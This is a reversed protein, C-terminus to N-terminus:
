QREYVQVSNVPQGQANTGTQTLTMTKGDASLVVRTTTTTKGSLSSTVDFSKGDVTKFSNTTKTQSPPTVNEVPVPKGDFRGTRESHTPKGEANVGDFTHKFAGGSAPEIRIINSKPAPGPSYKSKAVNLKWTGVWPDQAQARLGIGGVLLVSVVTGVVTQCPGRM